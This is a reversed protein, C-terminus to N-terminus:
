ERIKFYNYGFQKDLEFWLKRVFTAIFTDMELDEKSLQNMQSTVMDLIKTSNLYNNAKEKAMQWFATDYNSGGHYIFAIFTQLVSSLEHLDWNASKETKGGIESFFIVDFANRLVESYFYGSLAELPEQFFARNGNKIINGDIIKNATYNKFKFTRLNLERKNKKFHKSMDTVIDEMKTVEDNYLYGWGQRSQLPIGFMWGNPMAKHYTWEWDGPKDIAYVAASNVPIVDSMKYDSYDEPWGRCDIVWDFKYDAHEENKVIAYDGENVIDTVKCNIVKFKDGWKEKFREEAYDHLFFNNFHIGFHPTPFRSFIDHSRWDVYKVGYKVTAELYDKEDFMNFGTGKSLIHPISATTSEGIGLIPTSPDYLSYVEWERGNLFTLCHALSLIGATGTGIVAFKKKM